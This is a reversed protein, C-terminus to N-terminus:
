RWRPDGVANDILTQNSISFDNNAADAFSPDLTTYNSSNDYVTVGSDMYGAANFYNNNSCTGMNTDSQNSYVSIGMEAFINNESILVEDSNQWRVYYFRKTSSSSNMVNYFTNNRATITPTHAGDDFSNGKSNGDLRFFDRANVTACNAFTSNSLTISQPFSKRFDIFDGGDNYIDTVVCSEFLIDGTTFEGSAGSVLSKTYEHIYCGTISLNGVATASSSYQITHDLVVPGVLDDTYSGKLELSELEVNAAGDTLVFQVNLIPKNESSLGKLKISKDLTILGQYVSFEGGELLFIEGDEANTIKENLDDAPTLTIGEPLTTFTVNGRQKPNTGNFMIVTYETAFDLGTITAEGAAIEDPTLDRKTDGPTIIFHSVESGAPWNLTVSQKGINEDALPSFINEKDTKFAFTGWKSEGRTEDLSIAKIRASYQEESELTITIPVDAPLVEQTLVLNEFLLSDNYIEVVYHDISQAITWSIEANIQNRVKVDINLPTFAREFDINEIIPDVDECAHMFVAMLLVIILGSKKYLTNM